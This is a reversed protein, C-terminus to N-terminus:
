LKRGPQPMPARRQPSSPAHRATWGTPAPAVRADHEPRHQASAIASRRASSSPHQHNPLRPAVRSSPLRPRPGDGEMPVAFRHDASASASCAARHLRSRFYFLDREKGPEPAGVPLTRRLDKGCIPQGIARVEAASDPSNMAVSTIIPQAIPASGRARGMTDHRDCIQQDAEHNMIPRLGPGAVTRARGRRPLAVDVVQAKGGRAPAAGPAPAITAASWRLSRATGSKRIPRKRSGASGSRGRLDQRDTALRSM